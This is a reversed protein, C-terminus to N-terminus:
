AKPRAYKDGRIQVKTVHGQQNKKILWMDEDFNMPSPLDHPHPPPTIVLVTVQQHSRTVGIEFPASAANGACIWYTVVPLYGRKRKSPVGAAELAEIYGHQIVPEIPQHRQWWRAAGRFWDRELHDFEERRGIRQALCIDELKTGAILGDYYQMHKQGAESLDEDLYRLLQGKYIIEPMGHPM